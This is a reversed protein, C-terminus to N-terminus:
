SADYLNVVPAADQIPGLSAWLVDGDQVTGRTPWEPEVSGTSGSTAAQLLPSDQSPDRPVIVDGREYSTGARWQGRWYQPDFAHAEILIAGDAYAAYNGDGDPYAVDIEQGEADRVIVVSAPQTETLRANGEISGEPQWAYPAEFKLILDDAVPGAATVEADRHVSEATGESDVATIIATYHAPGALREVAVEHATGDGQPEVQRREIERGVPSRIRVQQDAAGQPETWSVTMRGPEGTANADSLDM